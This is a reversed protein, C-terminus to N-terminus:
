GPIQRTFHMMMASQVQAQMDIQNVSMWVYVYICLALCAGKQADDDHAKSDDNDDYRPERKLKSLM